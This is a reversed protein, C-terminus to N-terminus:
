LRQRYPRRRRSALARDPRLANAARPNPGGVPTADGGANPKMGRNKNNTLCCYAEAKMPNAAIWEPRDMTTAGVASAAM